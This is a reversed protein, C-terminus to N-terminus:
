RAITFRTTQSVGDADLKLLYIGDTISADLSIDLQHSGAAEKHVATGKVIRGDLDTITAGVSAENLLKYSVSLHDKAPNPYVSVSAVGETEGKIGTTAIAQTIATEILTQDNSGNMKNFQIKRNPGIVVVHPMGSGGFNNEDIVNGANDFTVKAHGIGNIDAWSQLTACGVDGVDDMLWYIVKGPNAAEMNAVADYAAKADSICTACPMIWVLVITKGNDLEDFLTYSNGDCATATFNTATTQSFATNAFALLSCILLLKKM